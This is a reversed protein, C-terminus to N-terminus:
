QSTKNDIWWQRTREIGQKLTFRPRWKLWEKAKDNPMLVYKPELQKKPGYEFDGGIAELVDNVSHSKGTSINFIPFGPRRDSTAALFVARAVDKVYIFDRTQKGDGYVKFPEDNYVHALARPILQNEGLPVQRPGYVNGFRLIYPSPSLARIYMEASYKSIGYPRRPCLRTDQENCVVTGDPTTHYVASTSSFVFRECGLKTAASIADLTGMINEYADEWPCQESRLLSPQAALHVFAVFDRKLDDIFSVSFTQIAEEIFEIPLHLTNDVNGSSLNDICVVDYGNEIFEECVHSGVFGAGGSIIVTKDSM